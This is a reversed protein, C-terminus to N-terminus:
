SFFTFAFIRTLQILITDWLSYQYNDPTALETVSYM